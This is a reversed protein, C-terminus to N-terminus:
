YVKYLIFIVKKKFKVLLENIYKM